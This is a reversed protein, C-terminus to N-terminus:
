EQIVFVGSKKRSRGCLLEGDRSLPIRHVTNRRHVRCVLTDCDAYRVVSRAVRGFRAFCGTGVVAGFKKRLAAAAGDRWLSLTDLLQM